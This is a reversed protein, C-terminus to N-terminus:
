APPAPSQACRDLEFFRAVHEHEVAGETALLASAWRHLGATRQSIVSPDHKGGPYCLSWLLRKEPFPLRAGLGARFPGPSLQERLAHWESYRRQIVQYPQLHPRASKSYSM